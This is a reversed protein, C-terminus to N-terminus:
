FGYYVRSDLGFDRFYTNIRESAGREEFPGVAVHPGLPVAREKVEAGGTGLQLVQSTISPIRELSAPIVVFYAKENSLVTTGTGISATAEPPSTPNLATFPSPQGAALRLVQPSLGQAELERVRQEASQPNYFLGSQIVVQNGYLKRFAGPEVQKVQQLVLPNDSGVYVLYRDGELPFQQAGSYNEPYNTPPPTAPTLIPLEQGGINRPPLTPPQPLREGFRISSNQAQAAAGPILLLGLLLGWGVGLYPQALCAKAPSRAVRSDTTM